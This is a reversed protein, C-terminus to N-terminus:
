FETGERPTQVDELYEMANKVEILTLKEDTAVKNNFVSKQNM